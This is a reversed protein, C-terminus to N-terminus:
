LLTKFKNLWECHSLYMNAHEILNHKNNKKAFDISWDALAKLREILKEIVNLLSYQFKNNNEDYANLFLNLRQIMDEISFPSIEIYKEINENPYLPIFRYVTYSIDWLRTGPSCTDFDILGVFKNGV